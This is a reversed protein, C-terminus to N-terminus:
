QLILQDVRSLLWRARRQMVLNELRWEPKVDPDIALARQLITEFEARNQKQVCVNEAFSVLPSALKGQSLAIAREFQQRSRELPDGSGNLRSPEYAILFGHIAGSEFTDELELARDIMAEVIPQDAVLNPNDKSISIAAGWSAATWYLLPVDANSIMAAAEPNKQVADRFGRHRVELGRLGYDRARLYLTRARNRLATARALDQDEVEDAQEQVFAYAYQTFGRAAALLLGSHRPSEAVLSEILKLSFPAASQILEPDNDSAYVDGSRALADGLKNIAYRRVCGTGSAFTLGLLLLRVVNTKMMM